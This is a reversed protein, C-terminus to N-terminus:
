GLFKLLYTAYSNYIGYYKIYQDNYDTSNFLRLFVQTNFSLSLDDKLVTTLMVLMKWLVM